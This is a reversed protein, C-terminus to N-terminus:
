AGGVWENWSGLSSLVATMHEPAGMPLILGAVALPPEAGDPKCAKPKMAQLTRLRWGALLPLLSGNRVARAM